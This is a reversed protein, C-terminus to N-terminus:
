SPRELVFAVSEVLPSGIITFTLGVYYANENFMPEVNIDRITIRTEYQGITNGIEQKIRDATLEDLPDFLSEWISTGFSTDFLKEGKKTMMINKIAGKIANENKTVSVDNTFANRLLGMSLDVFSRSIDDKSGKVEKFAM